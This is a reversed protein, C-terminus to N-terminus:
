CVGLFQQRGSQVGEYWKGQCQVNVQGPAFSLARVTIEVRMGQFGIQGCRVVDIAQDRIEVRNLFGVWFAAQLGNKKTPSCRAKKFSILDSSQQLTEVLM